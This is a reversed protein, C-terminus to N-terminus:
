LWVALGLDFYVPLLANMDKGRANTTGVKLNLEMKQGLTKSTQVGVHWQGGTNRYWGDQINLYVERMEDSHRLHSVVSADYGLDFALSWGEKYIGTTMSLLQGIGVQRVLNTEYRRLISLYQISTRLSNRSYVLLQTGFSFKYDNLQNGMPLSIDTLLLIPKETKLKVAFGLQTTMGFDYGVNLYMQSGKMTEVSNWNLSQSSISSKSVFVMVIILLIHKM